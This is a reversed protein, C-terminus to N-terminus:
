VRGFWVWNSPNEGNQNPKPILILKRRNWFMPLLYIPVWGSSMSLGTGFTFFIIKHQYTMNNQKIITM